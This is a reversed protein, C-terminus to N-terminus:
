FGATRTTRDSIRYLHEASRILLDGAYPVPSAMLQGDLKNVALVEYMESADLVTVEGEHSAFYLKGDALLPSASYNGGLRERLLQKGTKADLCTLIGKDSVFYLRDEVLIPSPMTPVQTRHKWLVHSATVDGEGTPDVAWLKPTTFGTCLFLREGDFVPRPVNSFGRGHDVRWIEDGTAPEYAVFWQAGPIVVQQRGGAEIVLPTCFSKRLDGNDARIPPRDQKWVTEGSQRDVAAVYQQDAGDRTLVLVDGVAVPSSGPGVYHEIPLQRRWVVSLDEQRVCAVGFAGFDCYVNGDALVPTPSAYSNLSHISEPREVEFLTAEGTLAGTALDIELLRLTIARVVALQQAIPLDSAEITAAVEEPSAATEVAATVWARNGAVVPSSWGRGPLAVKWQVHQTESWQQPAHDVKAIGQGGPGRFQPWRTEAELRGSAAFWAGLLLFVVLRTM